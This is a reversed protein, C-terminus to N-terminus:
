VERKKRLACLAYIGLLPILATQVSHVIIVFMEANVEQVGYLVLITKVAFHWPGMGNPTPVIVAITGVIFSVLAIDMGLDKTFDFCQFTIYYHLFYSVWIALTYVTFKTKNEVQKLSMVGTRIEKVATRIRSFIALKRVILWLLLITSTLCAATVVYGTTTFKAITEVVNTGTEAFFNMFVSAQSLFVVVTILLVLLSDIVRETVVTGIAKSFSVGDYKTLVGCRAVEGIRPIVLSAAYSLFVANICTSLRPHEGIPDLSQKWRLGRFMQATVGFVLSFAMWWWNMGGNLTSKLLAFDFNRYMWWLIGGGFLLPLGINLCKRIINNNEM